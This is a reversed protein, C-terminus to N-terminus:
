REGVQLLEDDYLYDPSLRWPPTLRGTYCAIDPEHTAQRRVVLAVSRLTADPYRERLKREALSLSDGRICEGTVLLVVRPSGVLEGCLRVEKKEGQKPPVRDLLQLPVLGINGALLGGFIAGGRGLGVILEPTFNDVRLEKMVKRMGTEVHKWGLRRTLALPLSLRRTGLWTGMATGVVAIVTTGVSM